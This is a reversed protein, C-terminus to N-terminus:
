PTKRLAARLLTDYDSEAVPEIETPESSPQSPEDHRHPDWVHQSSVPLGVSRLLASLSGHGFWRTEDVVDGLDARIKAGIQSLLVAEDSNNIHERLIDRVTALQEPPPLDAITQSGTADLEYVGVLLDVLDEADVYVNAISHYAPATPGASIVTTRRDQARLLQLLPTFDADASAIVFEDYATTTNLLQMLDIVMRIDAANKQRATLVPCDIVEFGARTFNPRFRQYFLRGQANGKETDQISGAPNMYARQVLVSRRQETLGLTTLAALFREPDEALAYAVHRQREM